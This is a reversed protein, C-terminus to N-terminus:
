KEFRKQNKIKFKINFKINLNKINLKKIKKLSM